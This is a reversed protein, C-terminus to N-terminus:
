APGTSESGEPLAQRIRRIAADLSEATLHGATDADGDSVAQLLREQYALLSSPEGLELERQAGVLKYARCRQWLVRITELLVPNGSAAYIIGLFEEDRDLHEVIRSANVADALLAYMRTLNKLDAATRLQAGLRAAEVELLRRVGYVHLLEEPTFSKVVAGRHPQAEALGLEELRRIAERVPM